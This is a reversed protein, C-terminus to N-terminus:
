KETVIKYSSPPLGVHYLISLSSLALPFALAPVYPICPVTVLVVAVNSLLTNYASHCTGIAFPKVAPPTVISRASCSAKNM